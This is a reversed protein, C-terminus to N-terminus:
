QRHLVYQVLSSKGKTYEIVAEKPIKWRRGIKFADLEGNHILDLITNKGLQLLQQCDKVTMIDPWKEFM